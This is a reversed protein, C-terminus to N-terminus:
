TGVRRAVDQSRAVAVKIRRRWLLVAAAALGSTLCALAFAGSVAGAQVLPGTAAAGTAIGAVLATSIWAFAETVTERTALAGVLVYECGLMPAQAVGALLSLPVAVALSDAFILPATTIALVLLLAAYRVTLESRWARAGYAFGGAMSGVSWLGLLIGAAARSGHHVAFASLGVELAGVGFGVLVTAGCVVQLGPNAIAHAKRMGGATGRWQRAPPATAFWVTGVVTILAALLVAAAPSDAAVAAAVLMPGTTWIVEQSTADVQYAVELAAPSRAVRPWLARVSASLPPTLSGALGALVILVAAAEGAHAALVLLVLALCQAVAFSVLVRSGGLRDILMGQFPTTAASALTFAGVAIGAAAFSGTQLRVLLLIALSSMGLPLRGALSSVLLRAADPTALFARYRGTLGRPLPVAADADQETNVDPAV